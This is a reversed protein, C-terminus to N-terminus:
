LGTGSWNITEPAVLPSGSGIFTGAGTRAAVPSPIGIAAPVQRPQGNVRGV